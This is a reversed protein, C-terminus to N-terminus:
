EKRGFAEPLIGVVCARDIFHQIRQPAAPIDLSLDAATELLRSFGLACQEQPMIDDQVLRAFLRSMNVQAEESSDLSVSVGRKVVEHLFYPSHLERICRVRM